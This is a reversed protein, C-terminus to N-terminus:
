EGNMGENSKINDSGSVDNFLGSVYLYIRFDM